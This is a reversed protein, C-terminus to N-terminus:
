DLNWSMTTANAPPLIHEGVTGQLCRFELDNNRRHRPKTEDATVARVHLVLRRAAAASSGRGAGDSSGRGDM